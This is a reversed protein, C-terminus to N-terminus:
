RLPYLYKLTMTQGESNDWEKEVVDFASLDLKGTADVKNEQDTFMYYTQRTTANGFDTKVSEQAVLKNCYNGNETKTSSAVTLTIM